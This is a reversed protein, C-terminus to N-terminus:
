EMLNTEWSEYKECKGHLKVTIESSLYDAYANFWFLIYVSVTEKMINYSTVDGAVPVMRMSNSMRALYLEFRRRPKRQAASLLIGNSEATFYTDEVKLPFSEYLFM